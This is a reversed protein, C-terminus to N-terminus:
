GITIRKEKIPNLCKNDNVLEQCNGSIDCEFIGDIKCNEGSNTICYSIDCILGEENLCWGPLAM